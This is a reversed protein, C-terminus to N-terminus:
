KTKQLDVKQKNEINTQINNEINNKIINKDINNLILKVNSIFVDDDKYIAPYLFKYLGAKNESAIGNFFNKITNAFGVPCGNLISDGDNYLKIDKNKRFSIAGDGAKRKSSFVENYNSNGNMCTIIPKFSFNSYKLAHNKTDYSTEATLLFGKLEPMVFNNSFNLHQYNLNNGAPIQEYDAQKIYDILTKNQKIANLLAYYIGSMFYENSVAANNYNGNYAVKLDIPINIDNSLATNPFTFIADPFRNKSNINAVKINKLAQLLNNVTNGGSFNNTNNIIQFVAENVHGGADKLITMLINDIQKTFQTDDNNVVCIPKGNDDYISLETKVYFSVGSNNLLKYLEIFNENDGVLSKIFTIEDNLIENEDLIKNFDFDNNYEINDKDSILANSITLDDDQDYDFNNYIKNYDFNDNDQDFLATLHYWKRNFKIDKNFEKSTNYKRWSERKNDEIM